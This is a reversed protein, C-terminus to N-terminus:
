AGWGETELTHLVGKLEGNTMEGLAAVIGRLAVSGEDTGGLVRVLVFAIRQQDYTLMQMLDDFQVLDEQVTGM